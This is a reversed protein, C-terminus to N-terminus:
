GSYKGRLSTYVVYLLICLTLFANRVYGIGDTSIGAEETLMASIYAQVLAAACAIFIALTGALLRGCNTLWYKRILLSLGWVSLMVFLAVFM